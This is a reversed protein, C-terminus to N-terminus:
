YPNYWSGQKGQHARVIYYTSSAELRVHEFSILQTSTADRACLMARNYLFSLPNLRYDLTSPYILVVGYNDQCVLTASTTAQGYFVFSEFTGPAPAHKLPSSAPLRDLPSPSSQEVPIPAVSKEVAAQQTQATRSLSDRQRLLLLLVGVSIICLLALATNTRILKSIRSEM